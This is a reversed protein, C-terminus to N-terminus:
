VKQESYSVPDDLLQSWDPRRRLETLEPASLVFNERIERSYGKRATRATVLIDALAAMAEDARGALALLRAGLIQHAMANGPNPELAQYNALAADTDSAEALLDLRGAQAAYSFAAMDMKPLGRDSLYVVRDLLHRAIPWDERDRAISSLHLLLAPQDWQHVLNDSILKVAAELQHIQMARAIDRWTKNWWTQAALATKAIDADPGGAWRKRTQRLYHSAEYSCGAKALALGLAVQDDETALDCRLASIEDSDQVPYEFLRHM